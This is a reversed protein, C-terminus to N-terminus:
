YTVRVVGKDIVRASLMKTERGQQHRIKVLDGIFGTQQSIGKTSVSFADDGAIVTVEEGFRLAPEREVQIRSISSGALIHYRSRVTGIEAQTVVNDASYTVDQKKWFVDNPQITQGPQIAHQAYPVQASYKVQAGVWVRKSVKGDNLFQVELNASGRPRTLPPVVQVNGNPPQVVGPQPWQLDVVQVEWSSDPLTRARLAEEILLKLKARTLGVEGRRITIRDPIKLQAGQLVKNYPRLRRGLEAATWVVANGPKPSEGLILNELMRRQEHDNSDIQAVAGLVVNGEAIQAESRVHVTVAPSAQLDLGLFLICVGLVSKKVM